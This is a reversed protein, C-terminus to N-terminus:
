PRIRELWQQKANAVIRQVFRDSLALERAIRPLPVGRWAWVVIVRYVLPLAALFSQWEDACAAQEAPGPATAPFDRGALPEERDLTRKAAGVQARRMMGLCNAAVKRLFCHLAHEDAFAEGRRLAEFANRWTEQAVDFSDVSRRLPDRPSLRERIAALVDMSHREYLTQAATESGDRVQLLLAAFASADNCLGQPQQDDGPM